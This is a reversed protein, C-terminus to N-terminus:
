DVYGMKFCFWLYYERWIENIYIQNCTLYIKSFNMQGLFKRIKVKFYMIPSLSGSLFWQMLDNCEKGQVWIVSQLPSGTARCRIRVNNNAIATVNSMPRIFPPGPFLCYKISSSWGQSWVYCSVRVFITDM